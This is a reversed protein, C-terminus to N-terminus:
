IKYFNVTKEVDENRYPYYYRDVTSARKLLDDKIEKLLREKKSQPENITKLYNIIEAEVEEEYTVGSCCGM